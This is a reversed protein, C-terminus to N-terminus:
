MIMEKEDLIFHFYVTLQFSNSARLRLPPPPPPNLLSLGHQHFTSVTWWPVIWLPLNHHYITHLPLRILLFIIVCSCLSV